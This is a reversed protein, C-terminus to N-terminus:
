CAYFFTARAKLGCTFKYLVPWFLAVFVLASLKRQALAAPLPMAILNDM